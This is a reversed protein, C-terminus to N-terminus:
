RLTPSLSASALEGLGICLPFCPLRKGPLAPIKGLLLIAASQTHHNSASMIRGYLRQVHSSQCLGTLGDKGVYSSDLIAEYSLM